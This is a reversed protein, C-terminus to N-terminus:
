KKTFRYDFLVKCTELYTEIKKDFDSQWRDDFSAYKTRSVALGSESMVPPLFMDEPKPHGHGELILLYPKYGKIYVRASRKGKPIYEVFPAADYQAYKRVGCTVLVAEIQAVGFTTDFYVTIKKQNKM